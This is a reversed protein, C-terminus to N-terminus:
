RYFTHNGVDAVHQYSNKWYPDVKNPNFYHTAGKTPDDTLGLLVKIALDVSREWLTDNYPTDDRGDCYWSFQCKNLRPVEEGRHNIKTKAQYVVNCVTNPYRRDNVRNLTVHAVALKGEVGEGRAEHYLNLALCNIAEQDLVIEYDIKQATVVVKKLKNSKVQHIATVYTVGILMCLGVFLKLQTNM